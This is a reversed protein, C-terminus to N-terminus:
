VSYLILGFFIILGIISSVGVSGSGSPASDLTTSNAKTGYWSPNCIADLIIREDDNDKL